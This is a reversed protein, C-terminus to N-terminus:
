ISRGGDVPLVVGTIFASDDSALFLAASAVDAPTVLRGMPISAIFRERTNEPDDPGLFLPLMPTDTATPALANVRINDAALELALGRALHNVAAKSSAYATHGPRTREGMISGTMVISGGGADRLAPIASRATLWAGKVNVLFLQDFEAEEVDVSPKPFRALGANCCLIDLRGFTSLASGVMADTEASSTIDVPCSAAASGLGAAVERAGEENLDAILVQAGAAVFREAMARGIGSAAGTIAAVKGNLRNDGM